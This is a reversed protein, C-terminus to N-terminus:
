DRREDGNRMRKGLKKMIKKQNYKSVTTIGTAIGYAERKVTLRVKGVSESVTDATETSQQKVYGRTPVFKLADTFQVFSHYHVCNNQLHKKCTIKLYRTSLCFRSNTRTANVDAVSLTQMESKMCVM